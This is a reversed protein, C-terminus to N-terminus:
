NKLLKGLIERKALANVSISASIEKQAVEIWLKFAFCTIEYLEKYKISKLTNTINNNIKQLLAMIERFNILIATRCNKNLSTNSFTTYQLNIYVTKKNYYWFKDLLDYQSPLKWKLKNVLNQEINCINININNNLFDILNFCKDRALLYIDIETKIQIESIQEVLKYKYKHYYFPPFSNDTKLYLFLDIFM